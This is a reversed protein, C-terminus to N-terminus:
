REGEQLEKELTDFNLDLNLWRTISLPVEDCNPGPGDRDVILFQGGEVLCLLPHHWVGAYYNVGQDARAYFARLGSEDPYGESNGPAVVVIFPSLGRPIWAQSGLPHRELMRVAIPQAARQAVALSIVGQGGQGLLQVGGLRHYRRTTGQNIAFWDANLDIVEGFPAFESRQLPELSISHM